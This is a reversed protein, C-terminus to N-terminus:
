HVLSHVDWGVRRMSLLAAAVPGRAQACPRVNSISWGMCEQMVNPPLRKEWLDRPEVTAAFIPDVFKNPMLMLALTRSKGAPRAEVARFVQARLAQLEVEDLGAAAVGFGIAPLLGSRAVIGRARRRARLADRVRGARM